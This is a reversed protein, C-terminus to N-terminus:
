NNTDAVVNNIGGEREKITVWFCVCELLVDDYRFFHLLLFHTLVVDCCVQRGRM